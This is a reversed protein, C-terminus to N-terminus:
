YSQTSGSLLEPYSNEVFDYERKEGNILWCQPQNNYLWDLPEAKDKQGSNRFFAKKIDEKMSDTIDDPKVSIFLPSGSVSLIDLWQRNLSWDIKGPIIGVCDADIKYFADNQCLRFALTNVGYARTRSWLRGSTDDGTRYVEFIGASLHSVANCAIVVADGAAERIVGYLESVIEASTKSEDHFSWGDKATIKGNLMCGFAGFLDYTTYDHKILEYGWETMKRVTSRVYERVEPVTPDLCYSPETNTDGDNIRSLCWEPHLKELEKDCLPRIWIGPRVGIKKFEEAIKAMDGFKENPEWPGACPNVSWGDDIVTFPKNENGASLEATIAADRIVEARSSKGYAYYWNNSGYVPKEPLRPNECM